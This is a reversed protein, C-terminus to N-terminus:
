RMSWAVVAWVPAAACAAMALRVLASEAMLSRPPSRLLPTEENSRAASPGRWIM